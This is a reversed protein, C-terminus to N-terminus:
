KRKQTKKNKKSSKPVYVIGRKKMYRMIDDVIYWRIDKLCDEVIETVEQKFKKYGTIKAKRRLRLKPHKM